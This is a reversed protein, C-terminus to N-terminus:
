RYNWYSEGPIGYPTYINLGLSRQNPDIMMTFAGMIMVSTPIARAPAKM